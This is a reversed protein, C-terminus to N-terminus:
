SSGDDLSIAEGCTPCYENSSDDLWEGCVPCQTATMDGELRNAEPTVVTLSM